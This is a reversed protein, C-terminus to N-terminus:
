ITSADTAAEEGEASAGDPYRANAFKKLWALYAMAEAQANLYAEENEQTIAEILPRKRRYLAAEHDSCLWHELHKYLVFHPESTKGRAKALLTAAAQGLGNSIIAAPLGNLYSTYKEFDIDTRGKVEKVRDLAHAARRQELTRTEM